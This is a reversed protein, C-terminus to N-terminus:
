AQKENTRVIEIDEDIDTHLGALVEIHPIAGEDNHHSKYHCRSVEYTLSNIEDDAVENVTPRAEITDFPQILQNQVVQMSGSTAGDVRKKLVQKAEREAEEATSSDSKRITDSYETEGARQYLVKHRAKVQFFTDDPVNAEFGGFAEV